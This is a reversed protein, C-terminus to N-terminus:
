LDEKNVNEIMFKFETFSISEQKVWMYILQLKKHHSDVSKLKTLKDCTTSPM